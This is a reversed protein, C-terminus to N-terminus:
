LPRGKCCATDHFIFLMIELILKGTFALLFDSITLYLILRLNPNRRLRENRLFLFITFGNGIMSIAQLCLIIIDTALSNEM